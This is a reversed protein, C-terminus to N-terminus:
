ANYNTPGTQTTNSQPTASDITNNQTQNQNQNRKKMREQKRSFRNFQRKQKGTM